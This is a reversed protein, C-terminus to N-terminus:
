EAAVPVAGAMRRRDQAGALREMKRLDAATLRLAAAVWIDAVDRLEALTVPAVRQRTQHVAHLANHRRDTRQIYDRVAAEGQGDEALVDVLGMEHLEVATYIRGSLIMKEARVGDLRRSLLSYAGMGPFLNFLVEPLGFKASREAIIVNCSLATEFGGGLADGQVLAITVIPQDYSVANNYVVDVCAHAYAQLKSRDRGRIANAFLMLDGGLNFIGPTHSGVVFYRFLSEDDPDREAFTSRILSQMSTVDRLLAPTVSPRGQPRLFCWCTRIASELEISIESYLQEALGARRSIRDEVISHYKQVGDAGDIRRNAALYRPHDGKISQRTEGAGRLSDQHLNLNPTEAIYM